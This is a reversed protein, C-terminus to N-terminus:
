PFGATQDFVPTAEASLSFMGSSVSSSSVAGEGRQGACSCLAAGGPFATVLAPHCGSPVPSGSRDAPAAAAPELQM